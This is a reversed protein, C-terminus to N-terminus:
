PCGEQLRAVLAAYKKREEMKRVKPNLIDNRLADGIIGIVRYDDGSITFADLLGLLQARVCGLDVNQIDVKKMHINGNSRESDFVELRGGSAQLDELFVGAAIVMQAYDLLTTSPYREYFSGMCGGVGGVQTQVCVAEGQHIREAQWKGLEYAQMLVPLENLSAKEALPLRSLAVWEENELVATM